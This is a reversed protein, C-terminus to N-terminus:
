QKTDAIGLSTISQLSGRYTLTFLAIVFVMLFTMSAIGLPSLILCAGAMVFPVAPPSVLAFFTAGLLPLILLVTVATGLAMQVIFVLLFCWWGYRLIQGARRLAMPLSLEELAIALLAMMMLVGMALNLPSEALQIIQMGAMGWASDRTLLIGLCLPLFALVILLMGFTLVLLLISKWRTAGLQVAERFAMRRGEAAAQITRMSAAQLGYSALMTPIMILILVAFYAFWVWLPLDHLPQVWDPSALDASTQFAAIAVGLGASLIVAPIMLVYM